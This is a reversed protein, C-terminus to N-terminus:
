NGPTAPAARTSPPKRGLLALAHAELARAEAEFTQHSWSREARFIPVTRAIGLCTTLHEATGDILKLFAGRYTNAILADLAEVGALRTVRTPVAGEPSRALLYIGALPLPDLAPHGATPVDYKDRGDSQGVFSRQFDAVNRGSAEMADSWLRLRRLGPQAVARAGPDLAIACVDDSLVPYGHGNFWAALTSKGAGSHGCFAIASRGIDISNAHLPMLGRQHLLAAFASGLLFVRLNRADTGPLADIVIEEGHRILYRGVEPVTLIVGAETIAYGNPGETGGVSGIRIQVDAGNGHKEEALEPRAIESRIRLGFAQYDGTEVNGGRVSGRRFDAAKRRDPFTVRMWVSSFPTFRGPEKGSVAAM